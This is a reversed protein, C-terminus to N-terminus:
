HFTPRDVRATPGPEFAAFTLFGFLFGGIHAEWAIGGGSGVGGLGLLALLNVAIWIGISLLVRRDTLAQTLPMTPISRPDNRLQWLGGAGGVNFMYRFVGGMLGSIAGSAGVMPVARDLNFVLFLLAGALGCLLAFAIFRPGDLRRAIAGGFALMWASNFLLHTADAHVLMHTFFSTVSALEGGPLEAAYGSLRAPIFALALTAWRGSDEPMLWLAIHLGILVALVGVVSGAVNFIPERHQQM